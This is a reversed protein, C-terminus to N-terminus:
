KSITIPVGVQSVDTVTVQFLQYLLGFAERDWPTNALTYYRGHYLAYPLDKSPPNESVNIALTLAPNLDARGTRGDKVVDYERM